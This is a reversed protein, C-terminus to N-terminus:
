TSFVPSWGPSVTPRSTSSATYSTPTPTRLPLPHPRAPDLLGGEHVGPTHAPRAVSRRPAFAPPPRGGRAAGLAPGTRAAPSAGRGRGRPQRLSAAPGSRRGVRAPGFPWCASLAARPRCPSPRSGTSDPSPGPDPRINGRQRSDRIRSRAPPAARAVHDRWGLGRDGISRRRPAPAGRRPRRIRDPGRHRDDRAPGRHLPGQGPARITRLPAPDRRSAAPSRPPRVGPSRGRPSGAAGRRRLRRAGGLEPRGRRDPHLLATHLRLRLCPFRGHRTTVGAGLGGVVVAAVVPVVLVLAATAVSLHARCPLM